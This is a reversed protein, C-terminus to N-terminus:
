RPPGVRVSYMRPPGGPSDQIELGIMVDLKARPRASTSVARTYQQFPIGQAAWVQELENSGIRYARPNIRLITAPVRVATARFRDDAPDVVYCWLAATPANGILTSDPPGAIFFALRRGTRAVPSKALAEAAAGAQNTAYGALTYLGRETELLTVKYNRDTELYVGPGQGPAELRFYIEACLLPGGLLAVVSLARILKQRSLPMSM